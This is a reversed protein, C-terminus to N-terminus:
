DNEDLLFEDAIEKNTKKCVKCTWEHSKQALMKREKPSSKIAGIALMEENVPMFSVLALM